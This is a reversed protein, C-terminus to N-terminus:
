SPDIWRETHLIVGTLTDGGRFNPIVTDLTDGPRIFIERPLPTTIAIQTSVVTLPFQALFTWFRFDGAIQVVNTPIRGVEAGGATWRITMERNGATGDPTYLMALSIVRLLSLAPATFTLQNGAGPNPLAETHLEGRTAPFTAM